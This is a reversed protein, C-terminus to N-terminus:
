AQRRVPSVVGDSPLAAILQEAYALGAERALAASVYQGAVPLWDAIQDLLSAASSSTHIRISAVWGADGDETRVEFAVRQGRLVLAGLREDIWAKAAAVGAELAAAMAGYPRGGVYLAHSKFGAEREAIRMQFESLYRTTAAASVPLDVVVDPTFRSDDAQRARCRIPCRRYSLQLSDNMKWNAERAALANIQKGARPM